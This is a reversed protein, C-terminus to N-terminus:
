PAKKQISYEAILWQGDNLSDSGTGVQLEIVADGYIASLDIFNAM